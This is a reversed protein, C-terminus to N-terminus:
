LDERSNMAVIVAGTRSSRSSDAVKKMPIKSHRSEWRHRKKFGVVIHYAPQFTWPSHAQKLSKRLGRGVRESLAGYQIM